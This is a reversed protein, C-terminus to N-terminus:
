LAPRAFPFFLYGALYIGSIGARVTFLPALFLSTLMRSLRRTRRSKTVGSTTVSITNLYKRSSWHTLGSAGESSDGALLHPLGM